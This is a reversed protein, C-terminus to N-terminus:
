IHPASGDDADTTPVYRTASVLAFACYALVIVGCFCLWLGGDPPVSFDNDARAPLQFGGNRWISFGYLVLSVGILCGVVHVALRLFHRMPVVDLSFLILSLPRSRANIAPPTHFDRLLFDRPPEATRKM